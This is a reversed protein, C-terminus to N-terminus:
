RQQKLFTRIARELLKTRLRDPLSTYFVKTTRDVRITTSIKEGQQDLETLEMGDRYAHLAARLFDSPSKYTFDQAAHSAAVMNQITNYLLTNCRIYVTDPYADERADDPQQGRTAAPRSLQSHVAASQKKRAQLEM